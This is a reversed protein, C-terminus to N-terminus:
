EDVSRIGIVYKGRGERQDLGVSVEPLPHTEISQFFKEIEPPSLTHSGPISADASDPESYSLLLLNWLTTRVPNFWESQLRTGQRLETRM